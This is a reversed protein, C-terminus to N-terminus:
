RNNLGLMLLIYRANALAILVSILQFQQFFPNSRSSPSKRSCLVVLLLGRLIKRQSGPANLELTLLDTDCGLAYKSSEEIDRSILCQCQCPMASLLLESLFSATNPRLYFFQTGEM